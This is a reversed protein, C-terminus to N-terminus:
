GVTMFIRSKPDFHIYCCFKLVLHPVPVMYIKRVFLMLELMALSLRNSDQSNKHSFDLFIEERKQLTPIVLSSAEIWCGQSFHMINLSLSVRVPIVHM